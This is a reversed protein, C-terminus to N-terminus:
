SIPSGVRMEGAHRRLEALRARLETLDDGNRELRKAVDALERANTVIDGTEIGRSLAALRRELRWREAELALARAYGDTLTREIQDLDRTPACLQASIRDLLDTMGVASSEGAAAGAAVLAPRGMGRGDWAWAAPGETVIHRTSFPRAATASRSM